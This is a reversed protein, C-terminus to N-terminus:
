DAHSVTGQLVARVREAVQDASLGHQQRLYAQDGTTQAFDPAVGLLHLAGVKGTSAMYEAVASGLGGARYHEEVTFVPIGDEMCRQIVAEDLPKVTHMSIVRSTIGAAQLWEAAAVAVPLMGGTSILCCDSGERVTIARGFAFPPPQQHVVPDGARGLRLYLPGDHTLSSQVAM